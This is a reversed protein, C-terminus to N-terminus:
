AGPQRPAPRRGRSGTAAWRCPHCKARPCSTRKANQWTPPTERVSDTTDARIPPQPGRPCPRISSMCRAPSLQTAAQEGPSRRLESADRNVAYANRAPRKSAGRRLKLLDRHGDYAPEVDVPFLDREVIQVGRGPLHLAALDGRGVPHVQPHPQSPEGAAIVDRERQLPTGAPPVDGLLQGPGADRRMDGLRSVGGEGAAALPVRFGALGVRPVQPLQQGLAPSGSHQIGGDRM